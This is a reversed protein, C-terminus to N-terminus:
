RRCQGGRGLNTKELGQGYVFFTSMDEAGVDKSNGEISEEEVPRVVDAHEYLADEEVLTTMPELARIWEKLRISLLCVLRLRPRSRAQQCVVRVRRHRAHPQIHRRDLSAVLRVKIVELFDLARQSDPWRRSNSPLRLNPPFPLGLNRAFQVWLLELIEVARQLKHGFFLADITRQVRSSVVGLAALSNLSATM